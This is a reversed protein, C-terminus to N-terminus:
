RDGKFGTEEQLDPHNAESEDQRKQEGRRKGAEWADREQPSTFFSFHSNEENPGNYGADFGACAARSSVSTFKSMAYKSM